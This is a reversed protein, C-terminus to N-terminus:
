SVGGVISGFLSWGTCVRGCDSTGVGDAPVRRAISPVGVWATCVGFGGQPDYGSHRILMDPRVGHALHFDPVPLIDIELVRRNVPTNRQLPPCARSELVTPYRSLWSPGPSAHLPHQHAAQAHATHNNHRVKRRNHSQKMNEHLRPQCVIPKRGM